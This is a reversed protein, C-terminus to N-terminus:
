GVSIGALIQCKFAADIIEHFHEPYSGSSCFFIDGDLHKIDPFYMHKYGASRMNHRALTLFVTLLILSQLIFGDLVLVQMIALTLASLRPSTTTSIRGAAGM